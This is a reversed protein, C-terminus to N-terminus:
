LSNLKILFQSLTYQQLGNWDGDGVHDKKIDITNEVEKILQEFEDQELNVVKGAYCKNCLRQAVEPREHLSQEDDAGMYHLIESGVDGSPFKITKM